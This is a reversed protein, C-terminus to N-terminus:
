GPIARSDGGTVSNVARMPCPELWCRPGASQGDVPRPRRLFDALTWRSLVGVIARHLEAGAQHFGCTLTLDTAESCFDGLVTGQCAEVIALLTINQPERNLVVGGSVGRHAKLIGARVLHRVVKALYSPSEGLHEAM